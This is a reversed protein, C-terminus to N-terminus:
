PAVWSEVPISLLLYKKRLERVLGAYEDKPFERRLLRAKLRRIEYRYLDSLYERVLHPDTTADPALGHVRLEELILPRYRFVRGANRWTCPRATL